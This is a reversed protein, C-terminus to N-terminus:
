FADRLYMWWKRPGAYGMHARWATLMDPDARLIGERTIGVPPPKLRALTQFLLAREDVRTTHELLHLVTMADRVRAEAVVRRLAARDAAFDYARLADRFTANADPYHPTGPGADDRVEVIAGRPIMVQRSANEFEVWGSTVHVIGGGNAYKLTFACGVDTAVGAPTRVGFTFPPAYLKASVTGRELAMRHRGRRTTVLKLISEPGIELEGVRAIQVTVRSRADTQLAEGVALRDSAGIVKGEVTPTGNVATIEWPSGAPWQFRFVVLTGVIVVLSAALALWRYRRTRPKAREHEVPPDALRLGGGAEELPQEEHAYRSLLKELRVVEPDPTGSGDWLYDDKM